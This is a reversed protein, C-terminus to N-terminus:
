NVFIVLSVSLSCLFDLVLHKAGFLSIPGCIWTINIEDRKIDVSFTLCHSILKKTNSRRKIEFISSSQQFLLWGYFLWDLKRFALITGWRLKSKILVNSLKQFLIVGTGADRRSKLKEKGKQTILHRECTTPYLKVWGQM